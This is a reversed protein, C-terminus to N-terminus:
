PLLRFGGSTKPQIDGGVMNEEMSTKAEAPKGFLPNKNAYEELVDYFGEDISKTPSNKRYERALKAVEEDRKLLARQTDLM